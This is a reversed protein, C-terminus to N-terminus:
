LFVIEGGAASFGKLMREGQRTLGKQLVYLTDLGEWEESLFREFVVKAGTLNRFHHDFEGYYISNEPFVIGITSEIPCFFIQDKEWVYGERSFRNGKVALSFHEFREKSLAGFVQSPKNFGALDFLLFVKAEDPLRHSLMQFYLAFAELCFLEKSGGEWEETFVKKQGETWSFIQSIEAAGRYLCLGETVLQFTPWVEKSFQSLAVSLANFRMEDELPFFPQELGLNFKWFIKEGREMLEKAQILEEKWDLTDHPEASLEIWQM